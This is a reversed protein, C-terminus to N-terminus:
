LRMFEDQSKVRYFALAFRRMDWAHHPMIASQTHFLAALVPLGSGRVSFLPYGLRLGCADSTHRALGNATENFSAAKPNPSNASLGQHIAFFNLLKYGPSPRQSQSIKYLMRVTWFELLDHGRYNDRNVQLVQGKTANRV